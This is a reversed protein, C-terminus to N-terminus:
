QNEIKLIRRELEAQYKKMLKNEDKVKENEKKMEILYLTLEEIKQLLKANMEGLNIGNKLVEEESPINELHGKEAIHKEVQELTPLIYEKKFVFDSWGNMDVKVEKSHITGNVDLKNLPNTTGIGINGNESIHMRVQPTNGSTNISNTSFQMYTDWSTGRYSRISASGAGSFDWSIEQASNSNFPTNPGWISIAKLPTPYGNPGAQITLRAIPNITGIGINGGDAIFLSTNNDNDRFYFGDGDIPTRFKMGEADATIWAKGGDERLLELGSNWGEAYSSYISLKSEPTSTGVGIKGKNITFYTNAGDGWSQINDYPDREWWTRTNTQPTSYTGDISIGDHFRTTWWNSDSANDRYLWSRNLMKNATGCSGGIENILQSSGLPSGLPTSEYSKITGSVDLKSTPSIIGIGVNNNGSTGQITGTPTYIQANANLAFYFTTIIALRLKM